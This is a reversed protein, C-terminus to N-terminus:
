GVLRFQVVTRLGPFFKHRRDWSICVDLECTLRRMVTQEPETSSSARPKTTDPEPKTEELKTPVSVLDKEEKVTVSASNTPDGELHDAHILDSLDLADKVPPSLPELPPPPLPPRIPPPPPAVSPVPIPLDVTCM